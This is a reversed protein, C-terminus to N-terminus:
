LEGKFYEGLPRSFKHSQAGMQAGLRYVADDRDHAYQADGLQGIGDNWTAVWLRISRDYYVNVGRKVSRHDSCHSFGADGPGFEGGCQSCSVNEFKM